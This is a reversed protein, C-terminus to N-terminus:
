LEGIRIIHNKADLSTFGLHMFLDTEHGASKGLGCCLRYYISSSCVFSRATLGNVASDLRVHQKAAVSIAQLLYYYYTTPVRLRQRFTFVRM